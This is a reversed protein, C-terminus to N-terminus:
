TRRGTAPRPQGLLRVTAASADPAVEVRLARALARPQLARQVCRPEPHVNLGRGPRRRRDDVVLTGDPGVVLRLLV